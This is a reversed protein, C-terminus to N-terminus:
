NKPNMVIVAVSELAEVECAPRVTIDWLLPDEENRQCEAVTGIKVPSDLFGPKKVAFVVDGARVRHKAMPIMALGGGAGKMVARFPGIKVPMNSAADTILRVRAENLWVDSVTGVISNDGLVFQDATLGNNRGCNIILECSPGGTSSKIVDALVFEAGDWVYRNHLGYLKKFRQRGEILAQELDDALNRLQNYQRRSVVDRPPQETRASLTITRGVSLPWRFIRAFGLQFKNTITHPALLFILGALMFWTFLMRGSVRTLKRAM